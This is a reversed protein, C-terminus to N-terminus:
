SKPTRKRDQPSRRRTARQQRDPARTSRGARFLTSKVHASVDALRFLPTPAVQGIVRTSIPLDALQDAVVPVEYIADERTPPPPAGTEAARQVDDFRDGYYDVEPAYRNLGFGPVGIAEPLELSDLLRYPQALTRVASLTTQRAREGDRRIEDVKGVLAGLFFGEDNDVNVFYYSQSQEGLADLSSPAGPRFERELEDPYGDRIFRGAPDADYRSAQLMWGGAVSLGEYAVGGHFLLQGAGAVVTGRGGEGDGIPAFSNPFDSATAWDLQMGGYFSFSENRGRLGLVLLNRGLGGEETTGDAMSYKAPAVRGSIGYYPGQFDTVSQARLLRQHAAMVNVNQGIVASLTNADYTEVAHSPASALMAVTAVAGGARSAGGM